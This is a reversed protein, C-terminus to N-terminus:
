QKITKIRFWSGILLGGIIVTYIIACLMKATKGFEIFEEATAIGSSTDFRGFVALTIISVVIGVAAGCLITKAIKSNKFCIAGLTFALINEAWNLYIARAPNIEMSYKATFSNLKGCVESWNALASEGFCPFLAALIADCGFILSGAALPLILCSVAIMSLWKEFRSAPLMLWESGYRKETIKGYAKAPFSVTILFIGLWIATYQNLSNYEVWDGSILRGMVEYIAFVMVPLLGQVLLSFKYNNWANRADYALYAGFRKINFVESM